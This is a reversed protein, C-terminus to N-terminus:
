LFIRIYAKNLHGNKEVSLVRVHIPSHHKHFVRNHVKKVYGLRMNGKYLAIAEKDYINDREYKWQLEEGESLMDSPLQKHSLGCIESVFDQGKVPNYDALFEFMDGAQLGQTKALITLRDMREDKAIRWFDYYREIDPREARTLRQAFIELVNETYKKNLDPFGAYPTFGSSEALRRAEDTYEFTVNGASHRLRGVLVRRDGKQSRWCLFINGFSTKAM